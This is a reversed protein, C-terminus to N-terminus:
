ERVGKSVREFSGLRPAAVNPELELLLILAVYTTKGFM